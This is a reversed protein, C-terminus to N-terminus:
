LSVPSEPLLKKLVCLLFTFLAADQFILIGSQQLPVGQANSFVVFRKPQNSLDISM